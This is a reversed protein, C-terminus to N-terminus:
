KLVVQKLLQQYRELTMPMRPAIEYHTGTTQVIQLEPPVSVVERAGGFRQLKSPDSNLSIGRGPKLLGTAKDIKVDIDSPELSSGGRYVTPIAATLFGTPNAGTSAITQWLENFSHYATLVEKDSMDSANVLQGGMTVQNNTFFNRAERVQDQVTQTLGIAHAACWLWNHQEEDVVCHGNPDSYRLPNNRTYTYLSWSQPNAADGFASADPTTFRGLNSAYYRAGFYELGSEGDHEEGAFMRSDQVAPSGSVQGFPWFDYRTVEQGSTNTVMRVSGVADTHYYYVQETQATAVGPVLCAWGLCLMGITTRAMQKAEEM